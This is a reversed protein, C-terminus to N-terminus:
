SGPVHSRFREESAQAFKVTVRAERRDENNRSNAYIVDAPDNISVLCEIRETRSGSILCDLWVNNLTQDPGTEWLTDRFTEGCAWMVKELGWRRVSTIVLKVM